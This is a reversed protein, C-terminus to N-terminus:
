RTKKFPLARRRHPASDTEPVRSHRPRFSVPRRAPFPQPTANRAVRPAPAQVDLLGLLTLVWMNNVGYFAAETYNYFVAALVFSLRLIALSPETKLLKRARYTAQAILAAMFSVGIYGLNLYQELYGSHAQLIGRAVDNWIQALREGSWFSMFGSGVVPNTPFRILKAWLDTRGTVSPDRGLLALIQLKVDFATELALYAAAALMALGVVRSPDARLYPLRTSALVAVAVVLCSLSTQSNSMYLLWTMMGALVWLHVRQSRTWALYRERDQLVQWAFYIGAILCMQGLANKQHGIGTYMPSGDAHYDRGLEPYYKLFLVSFPLLLYSLRRLLLGIARVPDPDTLIVLAMLPNGLDKIWRKFSILPEDSWSASIACYVLYAVFLKNRAFLAQWDVHRRRLVMLAALILALFLTRDIPSGENYSDVSSGPASLSIWSSLYRSGAFFMWAIPVWLGGSADPNAKVDQRFLYLVYLVFVIAAVLSTM